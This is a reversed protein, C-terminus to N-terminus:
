RVLAHHFLNRLQSTAPLSFPTAARVNAVGHGLFHGIPPLGALSAYALSVPIAYAALTVGAVMDGPLGGSLRRAMPCASALAMQEAPGPQHFGDNAGGSIKSLSFIILLRRGTQLQNNSQSRRSEHPLL